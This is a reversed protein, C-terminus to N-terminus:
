IMNLFHYFMPYRTLFGFIPRTSISPAMTGKPVYFYSNGIYTIVVTVSVQCTVSVMIQRPVDINCLM